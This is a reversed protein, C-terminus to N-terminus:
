SEDESEDGGADVESEDLVEEGPILDEASAEEEGEEAASLAAAETVASPAPEPRFKPHFEGNLDAYGEEM